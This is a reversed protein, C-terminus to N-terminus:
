VHFRNIFQYFCLIRFILANILTLSLVPTTSKAFFKFAKPQSTIAVPPVIFSNRSLPTSTNFM